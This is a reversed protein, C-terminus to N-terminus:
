LVHGIVNSRRGAFVAQSHRQLFKQEGAELRADRLRSSVPDTMGAFAPIWSVNRQIGAKAPFVITHLSRRVIEGFYLSKSSLVSSINTEWSPTSFMLLHSYFELLCKFVPWPPKARLSLWLPSYSVSRPLPM